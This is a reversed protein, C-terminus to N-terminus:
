IVHAALRPRLWALYLALGAFALLWGSILFVVTASALTSHGLSLALLQLIAVAMLITVYPWPRTALFLNVWLATVGFGVMALGMFGLLEGAPAFNGGFVLHVIQPGFLFYVLTLALDVALIAAATKILLRDPAGGATVRTVVRPFFVVLLAGPLLALVRRLVVAGAYAGAAEGPFSRNVWILDANLALMYAAYALLAALSLRWGNWIQSRPLARARRWVSRRLMVLGSLLALGAALPMVAVGAVAAGGLLGILVVALGIRGAAYATRTAGFAVFQGRGQLTGAVVPRLLALPVMFAAVLVVRTPVNLWSALPERGILILAMIALGLLGGQLFYAQFVAPESDNEVWAPDASAVYRAVVPQLVGCATVLILFLANVTQVISFAGASLAWGLYIHFGYDLLNTVMDVAFLLGIQWM